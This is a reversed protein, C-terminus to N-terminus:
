YIRTVALAALGQPPIELPIGKELEAASCMRKERRGTPDVAVEYQGGTGQVLRM